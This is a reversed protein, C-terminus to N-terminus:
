QQTCAQGLLILQMCHQRLLYSSRRMQAQATASMSTPRVLSYFFPLISHSKVLVMLRCVFKGLLRAGKRAHNSGERLLCFRDTPVLLPQSHLLVALGSGNHRIGLLLFELM